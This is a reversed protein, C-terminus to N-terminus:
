SRSTTSLARVTDRSIPNAVSRATVDVTHSSGPPATAATVRLELDVSAGAAVPGIRYTGARVAATVDVGDRRVAVVYGPAGGEALSVTFSDTRSRDNQVRVTFSTSTQPAVTSSAQQDPRATAWRLGDGVSAGGAPGIQSDPAPAPGCTRLLVVSNPGHRYVETSYAAAGGDPAITETPTYGPHVPEDTLQQTTDVALDQVFFEDSGDGNAGFPDDTASYFAHGGARAWAAAALPEGIPLTEGSGLDVLATGSATAFLVSQGGDTFEARDFSRKDGDPRDTLQTFVFAAIDFAFLEPGRDPNQGTFYCSLGGLCAAPQSVQMGVDFAPFPAGRLWAGQSADGGVQWGLDDDFNDQFVTKSVGDDITTFTWTPSRPGTRAPEAVEFAEVQWTYTREFAFFLPGVCPGEYGEQEGLTGETLVTDDIYIRYRLPDGDPDDVLNWCLTTALPLDTAGDAPSQLTPAPPLQDTTGTTPTTTTTTTTTTGPATTSTDDPVADPPRCATLALGLCALARRQPPLHVRAHYPNPASPDRARRRTM